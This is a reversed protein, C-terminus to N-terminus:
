SGYYTDRPDEINDEPMLWTPESFDHGLEEEQKELQVYRETGLSAWIQFKHLAESYETPNIRGQELEIDLIREYNHLAELRYEHAEM